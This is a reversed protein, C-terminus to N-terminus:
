SCGRPGKVVAFGGGVAGVVWLKTGVRDGLTVGKM